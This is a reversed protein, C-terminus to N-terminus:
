LVRSLSRFSKKQRNISQIRRSTSLQTRIAADLASPIEECLTRMVIHTFPEDYPTVLPVRDQPKGITGWPGSSEQDGACDQPAAFPGWRNEPNPEARDRSRGHSPSCQRIKRAARTHERSSGSPIADMHEQRLQDHWEVRHRRLRLGNPSPRCEHVSRTSNPPRRFPGRNNCKNISVPPRSTGGFGVIPQRSRTSSSRKRPCGHPSKM